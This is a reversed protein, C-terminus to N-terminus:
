GDCVEEFLKVNCLDTVSVTWTQPEPHRVCCVQGESVLHVAGGATVKEIRWVVDSSRFRYRKGALDSEM